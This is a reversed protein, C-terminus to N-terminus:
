KEAEEIMTKATHIMRNLEAQPDVIEIVAKPGFEEKCKKSNTAYWQIFSIDEGTLKKEEKKKKFIGALQSLTINSVVTSVFNEERKIDDMFEDDEQMIKYLTSKSIKSALCAKYLSLGSQLYPRLKLIMRDKEERSTPPRGVAKKEDAM